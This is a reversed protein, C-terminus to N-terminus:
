NLKITDGINYKGRKDIIDVHNDKTGYRVFEKKNYYPQIDTVILHQEDLDHVISESCGDICSFIFLGVFFSVFGTGLLIGVEEFIYKKLKKYDKQLKEYDSALKDLTMFRTFFNEFIEEAQKYTLPANKNVNKNESNLDNNNVM